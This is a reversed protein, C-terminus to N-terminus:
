KHINNNDLHNTSYLIREKVDEIMEKLPSQGLTGHLSMQCSHCVLAVLVAAAVNNLVQLGFRIM